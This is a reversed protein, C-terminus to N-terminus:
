DESVIAQTFLILLSVLYIPELSIQRIDYSPKFQKKVCMGWWFISHYNYMTDTHKLMIRVHTSTYAKVQM